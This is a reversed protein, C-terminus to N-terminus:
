QFSCSSLNCLEKSATIPVFLSPLYTCIYMQEPFTHPAQQSLLQMGSVGHHTESISQTRAIPCDQMQVLLTVCSRRTSIVWYIELLSLYFKPEQDKVVFKRWDHQTQETAPYSTNRKLVCSSFSHRPTSIEFEM